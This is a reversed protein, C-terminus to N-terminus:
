RPSSGPPPEEGQGPLLRLALVSGDAHVSVEHGLGAALPTRSNVRQETLDGRVNGSFRARAQLRTVGCM